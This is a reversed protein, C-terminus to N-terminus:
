AGTNFDQWWGWLWLLVVWSWQLATLLVLFILSRGAVALLIMAPIAIILWGVNNITFFFCFLDVYPLTGDPYIFQSAKEKIDSLLPIFQFLLSQQLYDISDVIAQNPSWMIGDYPVFLYVVQVCTLVVFLASVYSTNPFITNRIGQWYPIPLLFVIWLSLLIPYIPLRDGLLTNWFWAGFFLAFMQALNILFLPVPFMYLAFIVSTVEKLPYGNRFMWNLFPVTAGILFFLSDGLDRFKFDSCPQYNRPCYGSPAGPIDCFPRIDTDEPFEVLVSDVPSSSQVTSYTVQGDFDAAGRQGAAWQGTNLFDLSTANEGGLLPLEIELVGSVLSSVDFVYVVPGSESTVFLHTTNCRTQNGFGFVSGADPNEVSFAHNWVVGGDDYVWCEVRGQDTMYGPRGACMLPYAMCVSWGCYENSTPSDPCELTELYLFEVSSLNGVRTYMLIRGRQDNWFASGVAVHAEEDERKDLALANGLGSNSVYLPDVLYQSFTYNGQGLTQYVVVRGKTNNWLIESFMVFNESIASAYGLYNFEYYPLDPDMLRPYFLSWAGATWQYVSAYGNQDNGFPATFIARGSVQDIDGSYGFSEQQKQDQGYVVQTFQALTPSYVWVSGGSSGAESWQPATISLTGSEEHWLVVQGFRPATTCSNSFHFNILGETLEGIQQFLSFDRPPDPVSTRGNYSNRCDEIILEQPWSLQAGIVPNPIPPFFDYIGEPILPFCWIKYVNDGNVDPPYACDTTDSIRLLGNFFWSSWDLGVLADFAKGILDSFLDFGLGLLQLLADYFAEFYCNWSSSTDCPNTQGSPGVRVRPDNHYGYEPSYVPSRYLEDPSMQGEAEKYTMYGDGLAKETLNVGFWLFVTEISIGSLFVGLRTTENGLWVPDQPAPPVFPPDVFVGNLSDYDLTGKMYQGFHVLASTNRSLTYGMHLFRYVRYQHWQLRHAFLQHSLDVINDVSRPMYRKTTRMYDSFNSHIPRPEESVRVRYESAVQGPTLRDRNGHMRHQHALLLTSKSMVRFRDYPDSPLSTRNALFERKEEPGANSPLWCFLFDLPQEGGLLMPSDPNRPDPVIATIVSRASLAREMYQNYHFKRQYNAARERMDKVRWHYSWTTSPRVPYALSTGVNREVLFQAARAYVVMQKMQRKIESCRIAGSRTVRIATTPDHPDTINKYEDTYCQCLEMTNTQLWKDEHRNYLAFELKNDPTSPLASFRHQLERDIEGNASQIGLQQIREVLQYTASGRFREVISDMVYRFYKRSMYDEKLRDTFPAIRERLWDAMEQQFAETDFHKTFIEQLYMPDHEARFLDVYDEDDSPSHEQPTSPLRLRKPIVYKGTEGHLNSTRMKHQLLEVMQQHGSSSTTYKPKAKSLTWNLLREESEGLLCQHFSTVARMGESMTGEPTNKSEMYLSRVIMHDSSETSASATNIPHGTFWMPRGLNVAKACQKYRERHHYEPSMELKRMKLLLKSAEGPTEWLTRKEPSICADWEFECANMCDHPHKTRKKEDVNMASHLYGMQYCKRVWSERDDPMFQKYLDPYNEAAYIELKTWTYWFDRFSREYVSLEVPIVHSPSTHNRYSSSSSHPTESPDSDIFCNLIQVTCQATCVPNIICLPNLCSVTQFIPFGIFYWPTLAYFVVCTVLTYFDCFLAWAFNLMDVIIDGLIFDILSWVPPYGAMCTQTINWCSGWQLSAIGCSAPLQDLSDFFCTLADLDIFCFLGCFINNIVEITDELFQMVTTEFPAWFEVEILCNDFATVCATLGFEPAPCRDEVNTVWDLLCEGMSDWTPGPTDFPLISCNAFREVGEIVPGFEGLIWIIFDCYEGETITCIFDDLCQELEIIILNVQDIVDAPTLCNAPFLVNEIVGAVIFIGRAIMRGLCCWLGVFANVAPRLDLSFCPILFYETFSNLLFGICEAFRCWPDRCATCNKQVVSPCDPTDYDPPSRVGCFVFDGLTLETLICLRPAIEDAFDCFNCNESFFTLTLGALQIDRYWLYLCEFFLIVDNVIGSITPIQLYPTEILVNFLCVSLDSLERILGAVTVPNSRDIFQQIVFQVTEYICQRWYVIIGNYAQTVAVWGSRVWTPVIYLVELVNLATINIGSYNQPNDVFTVPGGEYVKDMFIMIEVQYENVPRASLSLAFGLAFLLGAYYFLTLNAWVARVLTLIFANSFQVIGWFIGALAATVSFIMSSATM